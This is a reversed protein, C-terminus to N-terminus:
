FVHTSLRFAVRNGPFPKRMSRGSALAGGQQLMRGGSLYITEIKAGFDGATKLKRCPIKKHGATQSEGVAASRYFRCKGM